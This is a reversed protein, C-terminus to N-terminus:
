CQTDASHFSAGSAAGSRQVCKECTAPEHEDGRTARESVSLHATEYQVWLMSIAIVTFTIAILTTLTPIVTWLIATTIAPTILGARM